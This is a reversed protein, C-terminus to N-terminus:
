GQPQALPSIHKRYTWRFFLITLILSAVESIPFAYWVLSLDGSLSLFWAIPLLLFMQRALSVIMSLFSNGLAQFVGGCVIGVAAMPFSLSIIRLAKDGITLMEASPDFLHLLLAPFFQFIALGALM